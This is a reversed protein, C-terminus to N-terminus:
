PKCWPLGAGGCLTKIDFVTVKVGTFNEILQLIIWAVAMFIIGLLAWTATQHAAQIAKPEGGSILYKFGAFVLVVVLVMFGLGVIVSIVSSFVQEFQALGAADPGM